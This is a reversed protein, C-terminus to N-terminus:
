WKQRQSIHYKNHGIFYIFHGGVSLKEGHISRFFISSTIVASFGSFNHRHIFIHSDGHAFESSQIRSCLRSKLIGPMLCIRHKGLKWFASLSLRQLLVLTWVVFKHIFVVCPHFFQHWAQFLFRQIVEQFSAQTVTFCFPISQISLQTYKLHFLSMFTYFQKWIKFSIM